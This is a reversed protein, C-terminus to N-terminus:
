PLLIIKGVTEGSELNKHALDVKKSFNTFLYAFNQSKKQTILQCLNAWVTDSSFCNQDFVILVRKIGGSM